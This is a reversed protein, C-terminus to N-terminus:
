LLIRKVLSEATLGMDEAVERGSGSEGFRDIAVADNDNLVLGTWGFSTGAEVVVRRINPPIINNKFNDNQQKFLEYSIMSVVRVRKDKIKEAAELAMSVESGTAIVIVDPKGDPEKVIYAGKRINDKWNKDYKSYVVLGQRTLAMATPGDQRGIAMLWAEATEEADGPRLTILGPISRLAALQEVPEHTPGDEGVFISDHTFVYIVPIKMMSALRIPPKMYDSFVLFTACFPRLGGHLVIGNTISGMAHERVGFHINRGSPNNKAFEGAGEMVTKNSPGLDASGGVLNPVAKAIANLVKGGAARTAIKDGPMFEPMDIMYESPKKWNFYGIWENYLERNESKWKDFRDTWARYEEEWLERRTKFYELAEDAVYFRSDAPVGLAKKVAKVEEEGLPAGHAKPNGALHPSGKAIVSTLKIISPRDKVGKAEEVLGAVEKFNYSDGSLTHWGYAEFRKLVDETFALDTSGEITVSNSDYFVILKGLGLHGALSAAESSIGEMLDGDGTLVYTFHDVIKHKGTNFKASLMREAIAMGVGNGFGQGLPGTTTEIGPTVGYEPHGPAKSGLRRFKSIDDVSIDYGSMYLLAYELLVGHGASLVFRDRDPWEPHAPNHHLVEGYILSGLEACGMPLGPHGSNAAQVADVTLTRVSLAAAELGKINM